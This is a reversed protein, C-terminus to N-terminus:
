GHEQPNPSPSARRVVLFRDTAFGILKVVTFQDTKARLGSGCGKLEGLHIGAAAEPKRPGAGVESLRAPIV